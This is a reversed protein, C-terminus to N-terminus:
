QPKKPLAFLIPKGAKEREWNIRKLKNAETRTQQRVNKNARKNRGIKRSGKKGGSSKQGGM